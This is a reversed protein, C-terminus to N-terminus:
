AAPQSEAEDEEAERGQPTVAGLIRTLLEVAQVADKQMPSPLCVVPQLTELCGAISRQELVRARLVV